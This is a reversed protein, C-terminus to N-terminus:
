RHTNTHTFTRTLLQKISCNQMQIEPISSIQNYNKGEKKRAQKNGKQKENRKTIVAVTKKKIKLTISDKYLNQLKRINRM